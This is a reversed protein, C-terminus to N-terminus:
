EEVVELFAESRDRANDDVGRRTSSISAGSAPRTTKAAYLLRESRSQTGARAQPYERGRTRRQRFNTERRMVLIGPRFEGDCEAPEETPDGDVTETGDVNTDVPTTPDNVVTSPTLNPEVTEQPTNTNAVAVQSEEAAVTATPESGQDDGIISNTWWFLLGLMLLLGVVPLAVRLYDTWYREDSEYSVVREQGRPPGSQWAPRRGEPQRDRTENDDSL